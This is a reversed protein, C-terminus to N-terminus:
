SLWGADRAIRIADVGASEEIYKVVIETLEPMYPAILSVRAYGAAKIEDVITKSIFIPDPRYATGNWAYFNGRYHVLIPHGTADVFRSRIIRALRHPDHGRM